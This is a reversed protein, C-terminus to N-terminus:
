NAELEFFLFCTFSRGDANPLLEAPTDAAPPPETVMKIRFGSDIFTNIVDLAVAEGADARQLLREGCQFWVNRLASVGEHVVLDGPEQVPGAGRQASEGRDGVRGRPVDLRGSGGM